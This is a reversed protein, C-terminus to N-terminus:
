ALLQQIQDAREASSTAPLILTPVGEERYARLIESHIAAAFEPAEQRIETAQYPFPECFIALDYNAEKGLRRARAEVYRLGGLRAYAINDLLSRDQFSLAGDPLSQELSLTLGIVQHQFGLLDNWPYQARYNKIIKEKEREEKIVRGAAEELFCAEPFRQSLESMLTTKGCCPGGTLVIKKMRKRRTM